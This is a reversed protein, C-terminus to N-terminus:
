NCLRVMNVCLVHILFHGISKRAQVRISSFLTCIYVYVYMFVYVYVYVYVVVDARGYIIDQIFLLINNNNNNSNSNYMYMYMYMYSWM